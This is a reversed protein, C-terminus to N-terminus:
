LALPKSITLSFLITQGTLFRHFSHDASLLPDDATPYANTKGYSSHTFPTVLDAEDCLLSVGDAM